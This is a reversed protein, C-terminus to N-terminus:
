SAPLNRLASRRIRLPQTRPGNPQYLDDPSETRLREVIKTRVHWEGLGTVEAAQKVTLWEDATPLSARVREEVRADVYDRLAVMMDPGFLRELEASM